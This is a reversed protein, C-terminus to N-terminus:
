LHVWLSAMVFQDIKSAKLSNVSHKISTPDAMNPAVKLRSVHRVVMIKLVSFSLFKFILLKGNFLQKLYLFTKCFPTLAKDFITELSMQKQRIKYMESRIIQNLNRWCTTWILILYNILQGAMPNFYAEQPCLKNFALLM